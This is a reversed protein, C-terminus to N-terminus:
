SSPNFSLMCSAFCSNLLPEEAKYYFRRWSEGIKGFDRDKTALLMSHEIAQAAIFLGSLPLEYKERNEPLRGM